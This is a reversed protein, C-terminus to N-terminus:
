WTFSGPMYIGCAFMPGADPGVVIRRIDFLNVAGAVNFGSRFSFAGDYGCERAIRMTAATFNGYTGAPYAVTRIRCALREELAVKSDCLERQQAAEDLTALVSHHYTHSGIAVGNRNVERLQEWTMFQGQQTKRDPFPVGCAASLEDLLTATESGPKKKMWGQLTTIAASKRAGLPLNEGRITISQKQSKKVFYAILDWWALRATDVLGPCVFFIAPISYAKLIPYALDYNDRYGDDFTIVAYRGRTKKRSILIDLLESEHLIRLKRRLWQMQQEFGRCEPGYVGDDLLSDERAHDPRIRHYGLVVIGDKQTHALLRLLGSQYLIAALTERKAM